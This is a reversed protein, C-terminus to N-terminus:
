PDWCEHTTKPHLAAVKPGSYCIEILGLYLRDNQAHFVAHNDGSDSTEIHGLGWRHKKCAFSRMKTWFKLRKPDWGQDATKAHWVAHKPGSNCTEIPGLRWRDNQAHLVVHNADSYSTEIPGLEWTHNKSAFCRSKSRFLLDRHTGSM